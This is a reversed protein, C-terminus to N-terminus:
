EYLLKFESKEFDMMGFTQEPFNPYKSRWKKYEVSDLSDIEIWMNDRVWSDMFINAKINKILLKPLYCWYLKQNEKLLCIAVNYGECMLDIYADYAEKEITLNNRVSVLVAKSSDGKVIALEPFNILRKYIKNDVEKLLQLFKPSQKLHSIGYFSYQINSKNCYSIFRETAKSPQM